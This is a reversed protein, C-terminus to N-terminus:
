PKEDALEFIEYVRDLAEFPDDIESLSRDRSVSMLPEGGAKIKIPEIRALPISQLM